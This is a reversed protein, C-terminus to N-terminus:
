YMYIYNITVNLREKNQPSTLNYIQLCNDSNDAGAAKGRLFLSLNREVGPSSYQRFCASQALGLFTSKPGYSMAYHLYVRINKYVQSVSHVSGMADPYIIFMKPSNFKEM